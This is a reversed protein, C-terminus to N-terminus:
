LRLGHSRSFLGFHKRFATSISQKQLWHLPNVPVGRRRVEFYLASQERGGSHGVSAIVTEKDVWDGTKIYLSQNHAYLTMYGHGHDLIVLLGYHKFWEAFAVRGSAVAKVKEGQPAGILLGQWTLRGIRKDGYRQLLKGQLPYPLHRKLKSFVVAQKGDPITLKELTPRLDRILAQLQRKDEQLRKLAQDQNKLEKALHQLIAQRQSYNDQLENKKQGQRNLLGDVRQQQQEIEHQVDHLNSLTNQITAIQASRSRNFYDHYTLMRGVSFPDQQSLWLRLYNQQGMLYASRIQQALTQQQHAHEARLLKQQEQLENLRQQQERRQQSLREINKAVKGIITESQQLQTQLRGYESRTDVMRAQLAQIKEELEKLQQQPSPAAWLLNSLGCCFILLVKCWNCKVM